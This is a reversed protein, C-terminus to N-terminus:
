IRSYIYIYIYIYIYVYMYIYIYIYIYTHTYIYIYIYIYERNVKAAEREARVEEEARKAEAAIRARARVRERAAEQQEVLLAEGGGTGRVPYNPSGSVPASRPPGRRALSAAQHGSGALSSSSSSRGGSGLGPRSTPARHSSARSSAMTALVEATAQADGSILARARAILSAEEPDLRSMASDLAEVTSRNRAEASVKAKAPPRKVTPSRPKPPAAFDALSSHKDHVQMAALESLTPLDGRPAASHSANAARRQQAPPRPKSSGSKATGAAPQATTATSSLGEYSSLGEMPPLAAFEALPDCALMQAARAALQAFDAMDEAMM